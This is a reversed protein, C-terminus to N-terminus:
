SSNIFVYAYIIFLLHLVSFFFCIFFINFFFWNFFITFLWFQLINYSPFQLIQLFFLQFEFFPKYSIFLLRQNSSLYLPLFCFHIIEDFSIFPLFTSRLSFHYFVTSLFPVGALLCDSYSSSFSSSSAKYEHYM